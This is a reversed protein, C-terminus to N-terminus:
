LEWVKRLSKISDILMEVDNDINYISFSVRITSPVGLYEHLPQACHLGARVAISDGNLYSAIDHPHIDEMYFSVIGSHEGAKVFVEVGDISELQGRCSDALGNVYKRMEDRDFENLFDIAAGLGLVGSVNPTGADLNRPYSQFTVDKYSVSTIIGGGLNYPQIDDIYKPSSYLVGTGFPGFLKHASFALFDYNLKNADLDYLAASQAADILVPVEKIHALHIMEEIPNVIGLVNSVHILAVLRTKSDIFQRYATLNLTGENKLPVVRLECDKEKCLVQWPVFNAHHEMITIVINDGPKLKAHVFSRAVVNISATTGSTFAISDPNEAGIFEAVKERVSEYRQSAKASLDYVGRHITANEARHFQNLSDIVHGARQTTAANDLYVLDPHETFIPFRSKFEM